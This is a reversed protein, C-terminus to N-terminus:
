DESLLARVTRLVRRQENPDRGALVDSLDSAEGHVARDVVDFLLTDASVGLVNAIAVFTELKPAKVGREIVSIHTRSLDTKEALTEQTMHAAERAAKIRM